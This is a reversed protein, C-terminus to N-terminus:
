LVSYKVRQKCSLATLKAMKNISRNPVIASVEEKLSSGVDLLARQSM